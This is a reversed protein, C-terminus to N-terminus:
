HNMSKVGYVLTSFEVLYFVACVSVVFVSIKTYRNQTMQHGFPCFLFKFYFTISLLRDGNNNM